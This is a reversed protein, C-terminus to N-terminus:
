GPFRAHCLCELVPNDSELAQVSAVADRIQFALDVLRGGVVPVLHDALLSLVRRKASEAFAGVTDDVSKQEVKSLYDPEKLHVGPVTGDARAAALVVERSLLTDDPFPAELEDRPLEFVGAEAERIRELLADREGPELCDGDGPELPFSGDPTRMGWYAYLCRRHCVQPEVTGLAAMRLVPASGLAQRGCIQPFSSNCLNSCGGLSPAPRV